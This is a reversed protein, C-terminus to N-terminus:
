ESTQILPCRQLLYLHHPFPLDEGMLARCRNEFGLNHLYRLSVETADFCM